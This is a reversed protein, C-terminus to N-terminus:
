LYDRQYRLKFIKRWFEKKVIKEKFIEAEESKYMENLKLKYLFFFFLCQSNQPNKSNPKNNEDNGAKVGM